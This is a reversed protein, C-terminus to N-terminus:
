MLKQYVQWWRDPVEKQSATEYDKYSCPVMFHRRYKETDENLLPVEMWWRGSKKSKYFVIEDIHNDLTVIYKLYDKKDKHPFDGKRNYFGEIFYWIMQAALHATTENKDFGPNVEYFGISSVKDSLGAYRCIQCAEEGYFGNPSANANGPADSQRIAGMDFSIIDANRVLPEAEEMNARVVGLRYVDFLLKKMLKVAEFDTFYSQYGINTLNFLYNPQHLIIKSIHSKSNFNEEANGLDFSSDVTTLNIIKGQQEYALYNAYTLDQSGGIIITVINNELLEAIVSRAAHYTDDISHGAKINGVDIIHLKDGFSFLSYLYKRVVDPADKSGFNNVSNRAEEIGLIALRAGDIEPFQGEQAYTSIYDGLRRKEYNGDANYEPIVVPQLYIESEM